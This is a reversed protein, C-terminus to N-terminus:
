RLLDRGLAEEALGQAPRGGAVRPLDYGVPELAIGACEPVHLLVALQPTEGPMTPAAPEVVPDLLVM